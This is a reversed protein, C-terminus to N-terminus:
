GFLIKYLRSSKSSSRYTKVQAQRFLGELLPRIISVEKECAFEVEVEFIEINQPYFSHDFELIMMEPGINIEVVTRLNSFSGILQLGTKAKDSMSKYLSKKTEEDSISQTSLVNFVDIPSLLEQKLLEAINNNILAEYELRVSLNASNKSGLSQKACMFYHQDQQRLRLSLGNKKLNLGPTDFYFNAQKLLRSAKSSLLCAFQLFHDFDTKTALRYKLEIEKKM